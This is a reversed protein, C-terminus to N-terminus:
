YLRGSPDKGDIICQTCSYQWENKSAELGMQHPGFRRWASKRSIRVDIYLYPISLVSVTTTRSRLAKTDLTGARGAYLLWKRFDHGARFFPPPAGIVVGSKLMTVRDHRGCSSGGCQSAIVDLPLGSAEAPLGHMYLTTVVEDHTHHEEM